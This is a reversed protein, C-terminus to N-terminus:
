HQETQLSYCIDGAAHSKYPVYTSYGDNNNEGPFNSYYSYQAATKKFTACLRYYFIGKSNDNPIIDYSILQENVLKKTSGSFQIDTLQNPLKNNIFRYNNISSVINSINEEILVDNRLIREEMVPGFVGFICVFGIITIMGLLLYKRMWRM